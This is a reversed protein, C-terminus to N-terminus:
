PSAPGPQQVLAALGSRANAEAGLRREADSAHDRDWALLKPTM